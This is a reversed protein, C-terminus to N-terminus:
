IFRNSLLHKIIKLKGLLNNKTHVNNKKLENSTDFLLFLNLDDNSNNLTM